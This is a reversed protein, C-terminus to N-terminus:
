GFRSGTAPPPPPFVLPERRIWRTAIMKTGNRVPLGAHTTRRDIEGDALVNRFYLADGKRGRVSLGTDVFMTEGGAYDDKLYIIVTAIRQNDTGPLADLHPRYEDGPRYRLIQLAEGQAADTQSLAAIRRNVARVVLDERTVGFAAGDSRRVPHRVMRGSSPDVVVSPQLWDQSLRAIHDCEADTLFGNAMRVDPAASLCEAEPTHAPAGDPRLRMAALLETQARAAPETEALDAVIRVAEPWDPLGGVGCALFYAHILRAEGHGLAAAKAFLDRAAELDRRVISGDIRWFALLFLSDPDGAASAKILGDAADLFRGAAALARVQEVPSVM